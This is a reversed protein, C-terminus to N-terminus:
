REGLDKQPTTHISSPRLFDSLNKAQEDNKDAEIYKGNEQKKYVTGNPTLIYDGVEMVIKSSKELEDHSFEM